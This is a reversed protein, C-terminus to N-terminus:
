HWHSLLWSHCYYHKCLESPTLPHDFNCWNKKSLRHTHAPVQGSPTGLLFCDVVWLLINSESFFPFTLYGMAISYEQTRQDQFLSSLGTPCSVSLSALAYPYDWNIGWRKHSRHQMPQLLQWATHLLPWLNRRWIRIEIWTALKREYNRWEPLPMSAPTQFPVQALQLPQQDLSLSTLSTWIHSTRSWLSSLEPHSSASSCAAGKSLSPPPHSSHLMM